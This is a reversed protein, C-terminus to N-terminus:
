YIWLLLNIHGYCYLLSGFPNDDKIRSGVVSGCFCLSGLSGLSGFSCHPALRVLFWVGFVVFVVFWHGRVLCRGGVVLCWVGVVM